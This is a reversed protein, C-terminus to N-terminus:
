AEGSEDTPPRNNNFEARQRKMEAKVRQMLAEFRPHDRIDDFIRNHILRYQWFVYISGNKEARELADLADDGRGRLAHIEATRTESVVL